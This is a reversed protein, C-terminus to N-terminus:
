QADNIIVDKLERVIDRSDKGSIDVVTWGRGKLVAESNNPAYFSKIFDELFSAEFPKNIRLILMEEETPKRKSVVNRYARMQEYKQLMWLYFDEGHFERNTM